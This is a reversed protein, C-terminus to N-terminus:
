TYAVASRNHHYKFRAKPTRPEANDQLLPDALLHGLETAHEVDRAKGGRYLLMFSRSKLQWLQEAEQLQERLETSRTRPCARLQHTGDIPAGM